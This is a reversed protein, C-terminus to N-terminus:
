RRRAIGQIYNVYRLFLRGLGSQLQHVVEFFIRRFTNNMVSKKKVNQQGHM